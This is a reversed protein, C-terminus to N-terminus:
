GNMFTFVKKVEQPSAAGVLRKAEAIAVEDGDSELEKMTEAIFEALAMPPRAVNPAPKGAGGLETAVYPPILEVVKVSTNRLQHRLSMTWSHVAAKTACYVPFRAMPVFALGSSVNILTARSQKALHPLFAATVRIPGLLNTAIESQLRADDLPTEPGLSLHMQVGANNIVCNLAPFDHVVQRAVEQINEASTVDLVFSALGPHKHCMEKLRFERRGTIIVQNGREHFAEALGRGIGSTAGTIFVTNGQMQM